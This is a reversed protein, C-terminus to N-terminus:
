KGPYDRVVISNDKLELELMQKSRWGMKKIWDKPLTVIYSYKGLVLLKKHVKM